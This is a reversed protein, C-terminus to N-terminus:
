NHDWPIGGARQTTKEREEWARGIDRIGFNSLKRRLTQLAEEERAKTVLRKPKRVKRM